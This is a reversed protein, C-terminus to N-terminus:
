TGTYAIRYIFGNAEETFLLSGDPMQLVGVPRGWTTPGSPDILFGTVFDEYGGIPRAEKNFPIFVIKYGTGKSRNWSGRFAVFAGGHYREPFATAGDRVLASDYFTLGLAASHAQFLVDPARTAAAKKPAVSKKGKLQRPDLLDARLYAYPWGFFEGERVRTFFDPVLDDGLADRENVTVYLEGSRPHLAMGVPNRLGSAYTKMEFTDLSLLQVSARPLPEVDVNTKSGISVYLADGKPTLLLNRTWHQRYGGGPLKAVRKGAERLTTQGTAFAFQLVKDDDGVYFHTKTHAMGFPIELGQQATAFPARTEAIGDGDSDVLRQIRQARTETVLVSGDDLRHLWRPKDLDSAFVSVEFGKPAFFVRQVPPEIVEPSKSASDTAFPEPLADISLQHVKREAVKTTVAQQPKTTVSVKEVAASTKEIAAAKKSAPAIAKPECGCAIACLGLGGALIARRMMATDNCM